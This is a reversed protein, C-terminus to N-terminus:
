PQRHSRSDQMRLWVKHAEETYASRMVPDGANGSAVWYYSLQEADSRGKKPERRPAARVTSRHRKLAERIKGLM